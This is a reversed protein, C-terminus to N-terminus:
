LEALRSCCGLLLGVVAAVGVAQWRNDGVYLDDMLEATTVREMPQGQGLCRDVANAELQSAEAYGIVHEAAPPRACHRSAMSASYGGANLLTLVDDWFRHGIAASFM